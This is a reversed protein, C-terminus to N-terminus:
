ILELSLCVCFKVHSCVSQSNLRSVKCVVHYLVWFLLIFLYMIDSKWLTRNVPVSSATTNCQGWLQILAAHILRISSFNM